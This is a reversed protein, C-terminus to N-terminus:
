FKLDLGLDQRIEEAISSLFAYGIPLGDKSLAGGVSSVRPAVANSAESASFADIYFDLCEGYATTRAQLANDAAKVKRRKTAQGEALAIMGDAEARAKRFEAQAVDLERNADTIAINAVKEAEAVSKAKEQLAAYEAERVEREGRAVATEKQQIATEATAQAVNINVEYTRKENILKVISEHYEPELINAQTIRVGFEELMPKNRLEKNTMPDRLIEVTKQWDSVNGVSDRVAILREDTKYTGFTIQDLVWQPFLAKKTYSEESSLLQSTSYVAQKVAPIYLEEMLWDANGYTQHLKVLFDDSVPLQFRFDGSIFAEGGDNFRVPIAPGLRTDDSRDNNFPYSTELQYTEVSCLGNLYWGADRRIFIDGTLWSTRVQVFGADNHQIIPLQVLAIAAVVLLLFWRLGSRSGRRRRRRRPPSPTSESM